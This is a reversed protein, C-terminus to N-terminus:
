GPVQALQPKREAVRRELQATQLSSKARVFLIVSM